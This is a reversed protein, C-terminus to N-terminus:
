FDPTFYEGKKEARHEALPEYQLRAGRMWPGPRKSLVFDAQRNSDYLSNPSGRGRSTVTTARSSCSCIVTVRYRPTVLLARSTTHVTSRENTSTSYLFRGLTLLHSLSSLSSPYGSVHRERRCLPPGRRLLRTCYSSKCRSTDTRQSSLKCGRAVKM